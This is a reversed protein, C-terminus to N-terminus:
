SNLVTVTTALYCYLSSTSSSQTKFKKRTKIYSSRTFDVLNLPWLELPCTYIHVCYKYCLDKNCPSYTENFYYVHLIYTNRHVNFIWLGYIMCMLVDHHYHRWTELWNHILVYKGRKLIESPGISLRVLQGVLKDFMSM